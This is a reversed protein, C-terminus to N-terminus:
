VSLKEAVKKGKATLEYSLAEGEMHIPKVLGLGILSGEEVKDPNAHGVLSCYGSNIATADMLQGRTMRGGVNLAQIVKVKAKSLKTDGVKVPEVKAEIETKKSPAKKVKPPEVKAVPVKKVPVKKAPAEEVKKSAVKKAPIKKKAGEPQPVAKTASPKKVPAKKSAISAEVATEMAEGVVQSLEEISPSM